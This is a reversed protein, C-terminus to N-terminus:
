APSDIRHTFASQRFCIFKSFDFRVPIFVPFFLFKEAGVLIARFRWIRYHDRGRVNGALEVHAMSQVIGELVYKAPVLPEATELDQPHGPGIMGPDGRLIDYFPLKPSFAERPVTDAPFGKQLAYPFPLGLKASDYYILQFPESGGAVPRALPKRHVFAEGPSYSLNEYRQIILAQDIASLAHDVPTRAAHGREGIYLNLALLQVAKEVVNSIGQYASLPCQDDGGGPGFGHQAVRSDRHVRFVVSVLGIYTM